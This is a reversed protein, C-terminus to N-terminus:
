SYKGWHHHFGFNNRFFCRYLKSFYGSLYFPLSGFLSIIVWSFSVVLYAEKKSTNAKQAKRTFLVFMLGSFATIFSSILIPYFDSTAKFLHIDQLSDPHYYASFAISSLMAFGEMLLLIGIIRFILKFNISQRRM